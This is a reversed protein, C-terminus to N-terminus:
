LNNEILRAMNLVTEKGPHSNDSATDIYGLPVVGRALPSDAMRLVSTPPDGRDLGGYGDGDTFRAQSWDNDVTVNLPYQFPGGDSDVKGPGENVNKLNHFLTWQLLKDGCILQLSDIILRTYEEQTIKMQMVWDHGIKATTHSQKSWHGIPLIEKEAPIGENYLAIRYPSTWGICIKHPLGYEKIHDIARMWMHWNSEGPYSFNNVTRDTKIVKHLHHEPELYHGYVCSCGYLAVSESWNSFDVPHPPLGPSTKYNRM